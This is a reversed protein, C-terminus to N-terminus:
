DKNILRADCGGQDRACNAIKARLDTLLIDPGFRWILHQRSYQGARGCKDCVYHIEANPYDRLKLDRIVALIFPASIIWVYVSLITQM